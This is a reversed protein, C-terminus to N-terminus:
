ETGPMPAETSPPPSAEEEEEKTRRLVIGTIDEARIWDDEIAIVARLCRIDDGEDTLVRVNGTLTIQDKLDEYVAEDAWATKDEQVAKLPGYVLAKKVDDAYYYVIKQGTITTKKEWYDQLKEPEEEGSAEEQESGAGAAPSESGEASETAQKEEAESQEETKKKQTVMTVNGTIVMKEEDFDATILDGVITTEPDQVKLHGLARATEDQDNYWAEDCYLRADEHRFVVGGSLHALKAKADWHLQDAHEIHVIDEEEPVQKDATDSETEQPPPAEEDKERSLTAQQQAPAASILLCDSVVAILLMAALLWLHVRM